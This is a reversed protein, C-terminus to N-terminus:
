PGKVRAGGELPTLGVTWASTCLDLDTPVIFVNHPYFRPHITPLELSMTRAVCAGPSDSPPVFAGNFSVAFSAVANPNLLVGHPKVTAYLMSGKHLVRARIRQGNSSFFTLTAFGDISCSRQSQNAILVTFGDSGGAGLWSEAAAALQSDACMHALSKTSASSLEPYVGICTILSIFVAAVVSIRRM